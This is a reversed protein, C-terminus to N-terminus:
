EHKAIPLTFYFESGKKLESELGICGGHREIIESSIYLGLGLGSLTERDKGEVRFFREFVKEQDEPSLGLGHDRVALRVAEPEYRISVEVKNSKPSYKIANTLFNAIVQGIRDRDAYVGRREDMSIEISHTSTTRQIEEVVEEVLANFDFEERRLILKGQELRTVDLLDNILLTLRNIQQNIKSLMGYTLQDDANEFRRQLLETYALMSTVPTKLEHSAVGLFEDKQRLLTEQKTVDIYSFAYGFYEGNEGLVPTGYWELIRGDKFFLKEQNQVRTSYVREITQQRLDVKEYL